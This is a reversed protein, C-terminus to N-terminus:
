FCGWVLVARYVSFSFNPDAYWYPFVTFDDENGIINGRSNQNAEKLSKTINDALERARILNDTCDVSKICVSHYAM